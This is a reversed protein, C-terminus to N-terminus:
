LTMFFFLSIIISNYIFYLICQSRLMKHTPILKNLIFKVTIEFLNLIDIIFTSCQYLLYDLILYLLIHVVISHIKSFLSINKVM